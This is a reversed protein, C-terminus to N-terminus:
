KLVKLAQLQEQALQIEALTWIRRKGLRGSPPALSGDRLRRYFTARSIGLMTIAGADSFGSFRRSQGAM